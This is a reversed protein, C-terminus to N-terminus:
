PFEIRVDDFAVYGEPLKHRWVPYDREPRLRHPDGALQGMPAIQLPFLVLMINTNVHALVKELPKVGYMDGRDHRAGLPTWQAEDPALTITGENWDREVPLPQSTFLWGSVIGEVNGQILLVLGAGCAVLEGKLRVTMRAGTFNTPFGGALFGNPGGVEKIVESQPGCTNMCALMHLYGAGPPAHNYDIWWPSRTVVTGTQYELPKPGGQNSIWGWWGAPGSDFSERYVKSVIQRSAAKAM